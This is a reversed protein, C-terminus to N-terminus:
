GDSDGGSWPMEPEAQLRTILASAQVKTLGDKLAADVKSTPWGKRTALNRIMGLQKPSAPGVGPKVSKDEDSSRSLRTRDLQAADDAMVRHTEAAVMEERSPRAGKTSFGLNALARGIASTECNEVFSTRNVGSASLTEEAYGTASPRDEPDAEHRWVSTRIIVQGLRGEPTVTQWEIRSTIRGEPHAAWFKHIRDDVTEYSGLDFAM